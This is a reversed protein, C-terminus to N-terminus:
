GYSGSSAKMHGWGCGESVMVLWGALIGEELPQIGAEHPGKASVLVLWATDGEKSPQTGM